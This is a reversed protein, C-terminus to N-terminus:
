YRNSQIQKRYLIGPECAKDLLLQKNSIKRM